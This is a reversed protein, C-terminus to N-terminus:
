LRPLMRAMNWPDCGISEVVYLEGLERIRREIVEQDLTNGGDSDLPGSAGLGRLHRPAERPRAAHGTAVLLRVARRLRGRRRRPLPSWPPCTRLVVCSAATSMLALRPYLAYISEACSLCATSAVPRGFIWRNARGGLAYYDMQDEMAAPIRRRDLERAVDRPRPPAHETGPRYYERHRRRAYALLQKADTVEFVARLDYRDPM